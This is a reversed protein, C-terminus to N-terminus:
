PVRNTLTIKNRGNSHGIPPINVMQQLPYVCPMTVGLGLCMGCQRYRGSDRAAKIIILLSQSGFTPLVRVEHQTYGSKLHVFPLWGAFILWSVVLAWVPIRTTPSVTNLKAFFRVFANNDMQNLDRTLGYLTRSAVYLATNAASLGSYVLFGTLVGPLAAIGVQLVAIVPAAYSRSSPHNWTFPSRGLLDTDNIDVLAQGFFQPLNQNIWEINAVFGGISILYIALVIYAIYKAPGKLSGPRSAEFATVTILEVGIYSFIALPISVRSDTLM